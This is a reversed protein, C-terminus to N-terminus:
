DTKVKLNFNRSIEMFGKSDAEEIVHTAPLHGDAEILLRYRKGPNLMILFKGTLKNSKYIGQIKDYEDIM